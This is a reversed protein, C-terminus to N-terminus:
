RHQLSREPRNARAELHSVCAPREGPRVSYATDSKAIQDRGHLKQALTHLQYKLGALGAAASLNQAPAGPKRSAASARGGPRATWIAVFAPTKAGSHACHLGPRRRRLNRSLAM